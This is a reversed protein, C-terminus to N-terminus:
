NSIYSIILLWLKIPIQTLILCTYVYKAICPWAYLIINFTCDHMKWVQSYTYNLWANNYPLLVRLFLELSDCSSESPTMSMEWDINSSSTTSLTCANFEETLNAVNEHRWNLNVNRVYSRMIKSDKVWLLLKM